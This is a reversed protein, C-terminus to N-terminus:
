GDNVMTLGVMKEWLFVVLWGILKQTLTIFVGHSWSKKEINKPTSSGHSIGIKIDMSGM